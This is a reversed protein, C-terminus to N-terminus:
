NRRAQADGRRRFLGRRGAESAGSPSLSRCLCVSPSAPRASLCKQMAEDTAVLVVGEAERPLIWPFFVGRRCSAAKQAHQSAAAEALAGGRIGLKRASDAFAAASLREIRRDLLVELSPSAEGPSSAETCRWGRPKYVAFFRDAVKGFVLLREESLCGGALGSVKRARGHGRLFIRSASTDRVLSLSDAFASPPLSLSLRRGLLRQCM